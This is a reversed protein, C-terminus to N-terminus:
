PTCTVRQVAAEVAPGARTWDAVDQHPGTCHPAHAALLLGPLPTLRDLRHVATVALDVQNCALTSVVAALAVPRMFERILADAQQVTVPGPLADLRPPPAHMLPCAALHELWTRVGAYAADAGAM